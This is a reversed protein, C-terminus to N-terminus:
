KNFDPFDFSYFLDGGPVPHGYNKKWPTAPDNKAIDFLKQDETFSFEEKPIGRIKKGRRINYLCIGRRYITDLLCKLVINPTAGEYHKKNNWIKEIHPDIVAHWATTNLKLFEVVDAKKM